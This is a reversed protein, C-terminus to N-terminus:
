AAAKKLIALDAQADALRRKLETNEQALAQNRASQTPSLQSAKGAGVRKASKSPDSARAAKTTVQGQAPSVANDAAERKIWNWLSTEPMGLRMATENGGITKAMALAEAKFQPDYCRNKIGKKRAMEKNGKM